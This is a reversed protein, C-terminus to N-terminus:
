KRLVRNIVMKVKDFDYPKEMIDIFGYQQYNAMIPDNAYGSSVIIRAKPDIQLIEITADKGGMGGPITLDMIIASFKKGNKMVLKCADIAARGDKTITVDYGLENIMEKLISSIIDEDDMILISTQTSDTPNISNQATAIKTENIIENAPIYVIFESGKNLESKVLIIGDHKSIISFVTALGLGSGSAKTSFYPEFIKEIYEQPIGIGQDKIALKLYQGAKLNTIQDANLLENHLEIRLIGGNVMAQKANIVLNTIVQQIQGRDVNAFWLNESIDFEAKINSGALDFRVVDALLNGLDVNERIPEGGKSFTLLKKTLNTARSMSNNIDSFFIRAKSDEPIYRNAMSINGYIGTLINNFDHAIGGALTGISELHQIKQIQKELKKQETINEVVGEYFQPKGNADFITKANERILVEEGTKTLWVTEYGEIIEKNSMENIFDSRSNINHFGEKLLNRMKLDELSDYGLMTILAPNAMIIKGDVSTRYLGLPINNIFENLKDNSIKLLAEKDKLETVDRGLIIVGIMDDNSDFLPHTNWSITRQKGSKCTIETEVNDVRKGSALIGAMKQSTKSRYEEDPYLLEWIKSNGIVEEKSYGSLEEAARNWVLINYDMDMVDLWMNAHEIISNRFQSLDLNLKEINKANTIDRIHEIIHKLAGDKAFVPYAHIEYWKDIKPFYEVIKEPQQSKQCKVLPSNFELEQIANKKFIKNGATNCRIFELDNSYFAIADPIGNLIGELLNNKNELEEKTEISDSIDLIVLLLQHMGDNNKPFVSLKFLVNIPQKDKRIFKAIGQESHNDNQNELKETIKVWNINSDFIDIDLGNVESFSFGLINEAGKSFDTIIREETRQTFLIFGVNDATRFITELKEAHKRINEEFEKRRSIIRTIGTLVIPNGKKDYKAVQGIGDVWILNGSKDRIRFETYYSDVKGTFYDDITQLILKLDDQYVFKRMEAFTKPVESEKYGLYTFLEPSINIEKTEFNNEFFSTNSMKLSLNMKQTLNELKNQAKQRELIDIKLERTKSNVKHKLLYIFLIAILLIIFMFTFSTFIWSPIQSTNISASFHESISRYYLSKPDKKLHKIHFDIRSILNSSLDSNKPFAFKLQAPHLIISSRKIKFDDEHNLAFDKSVLAGFVEKNHLSKFVELYSDKMILSCQLDFKELIDLLGDQGTVNASGEL